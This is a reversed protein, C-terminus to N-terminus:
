RNQKCYSPTGSGARNFFVTTLIQPCSTWSYNLCEFQDHPEWRQISSFEARFAWYPLSKHGSFHILLMIQLTVPQTVPTHLPAFPLPRHSAFTTSTICFLVICFFSNESTLRPNLSRCFIALIQLPQVDGPFWWSRGSHKTSNDQATSNDRTTATAVTLKTLLQPQLAVARYYRGPDYSYGQPLWLSAAPSLDVLAQVRSSVSDPGSVAVSVGASALKASM